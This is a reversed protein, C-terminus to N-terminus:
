TSPNQIIKMGIHTLFRFIGFGYSSVNFEGILFGSKELGNIVNVANCKKPYFIPPLVATGLATVRFM